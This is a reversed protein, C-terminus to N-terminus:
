RRGAKASSKRAGAALVAEEDEEPHVADAASQYIGGEALGSLKTNAFASAWPVSAQSRLRRRSIPMWTSEGFLM